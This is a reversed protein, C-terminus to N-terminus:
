PAPAGYAASAYGVVRSHDGSVDGSDAYALVGGATLGLRRAAELVAVMPGGGCAHGPEREIARMLGEADGHGLRDLVVADLARATASDHYHSLDSSAVLAVPAGAVAGALAAGLAFAVSRSQQGMLIPLLPVGPFLRGIFPLQLELSHEGAHVEPRAERVLPTEDHLRDALAEAVPSEGWPTEVAGRDLMACGPFEVYHSPGVLVIAEPPAAALARYSWAAVRGSYRLGAHPAVAARVVAVRDAAAALAEDVDRALRDRDGAYWAGAFALRRLPGPRGPRTMLPIPGYALM